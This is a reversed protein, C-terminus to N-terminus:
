MALDPGSVPGRHPWTWRKVEQSWVANDIGLGETDECTRYWTHVPLSQEYKKDIWSDLIPALAFSAAKKYQGDFLLIVPIGKQTKPDLEKQMYHHLDSLTLGRTGHLKVTRKICKM